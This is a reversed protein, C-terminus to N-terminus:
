FYLKEFVEFKEQFKRFDKLYWQRGSNVCDPVIKTEIVFKRKVIQKDDRLPWKFFGQQSCPTMFKVTATDEDSVTQVVGPYWGDQYAVIVYEGEIFELSQNHIEPLHSKVSRKKNTKNTMSPGKRKKEKMLIMENSIEQLVEKEEERHTKRMERGGKRANHLLENKQDPKMESIWNMLQKRNRKLLQVSSHHHMTANPRRKQSSDLDGFHHECSLNTVMAFNTRKIEKEDSQQFFKGGPLFDALQKEIASLMASAVIKIVNSLLEPM